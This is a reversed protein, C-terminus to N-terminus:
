IYNKECFNLFNLLVKLGARHSKEVHFQVGFINDKRVFVPFEYGHNSTAIVYKDETIAHYSHAFYFSSNKDVGEFLWKHNKIFIDNWGFHPISIDFNENFHVVNGPIWSLGEESDEESSEFLLQYGICIGLIPKRKEFVENELTSIIKSKILTKMAAGFAGVGPLIFCDAKQIKKIDKTIEVNFIGLFELANKVSKINGVGYDIIIVNLSKTM